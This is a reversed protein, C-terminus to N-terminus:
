SISRDYIRTNHSYIKGINIRNEILNQVQKSLRTNEPTKKKEM